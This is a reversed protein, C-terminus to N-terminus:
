KNGGFITQYFDQDSSLKLFEQSNLFFNNNCFQKVLLVMIFRSWKNRSYQEQVGM